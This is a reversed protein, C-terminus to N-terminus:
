ELSLQFGSFVFVPDRTLGPIVSLPFSHIDEGTEKRSEKDCHGPIHLRNIRKGPPIRSIRWSASHFWKPLKPPVYPFYPPYPRYPPLDSLPHITVPIGVCRPKDRKRDMLKRAVGEDHAVDM